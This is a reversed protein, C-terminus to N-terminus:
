QDGWGESERGNQWLLVKLTGCNNNAWLACKARHEEDMQILTGTHGCIWQSRLMSGHKCAEQPHNVSCQNPPEWVPACYFQQKHELPSHENDLPVADQKLAICLVLPTVVVFWGKKVAPVRLFILCMHDTLCCSKAILWYFRRWWNYSFSGHCPWAIRKLLPQLNSTCRSLSLAQFVIHLTM